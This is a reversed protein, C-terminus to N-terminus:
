SLNIPCKITELLDLKSVSYSSINMKQIISNNLLSSVDPRKDPNVTLCLEIM